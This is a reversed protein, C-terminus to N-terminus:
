KRTVITATVKPDNLYARLKTTLMQELRGTTCGKVNVVIQHLDLRLQGSSDISCLRNYVRDDPTVVMIKVQAGPVLRDAIVVRVDEDDDEMDVPKGCYPCFKWAARTRAGKRATVTTVEGGCSPCQFTKRQEMTNIVFSGSRFPVPPVDTIASPVRPSFVGAPPAPFAAAFSAAPLIRYWVRFKKDEERVKWVTTCRVNAQDALAQLASGLRINKAKLYVRTDAPVGEEVDYDQKADAFLKRLADALPVNDFDANVRKESAANLVEVGPVGRLTALQAPIAVGTQYTQRAAQRLAENAERLAKRTEEQEKRQEERQQAHQDDRASEPPTGQAMAASALGFGLVAAPLAV